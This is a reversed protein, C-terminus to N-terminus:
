VSLAGFVTFKKGNIEYERIYNGPLDKKVAQEQKPAVPTKPKYSPECAKGNNMHECFKKAIQVNNISAGLRYETLAETGKVGILLGVAVALVFPLKKSRSKKKPFSTIM